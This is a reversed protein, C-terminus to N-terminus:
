KRKVSLLLDVLLLIPYGSACAEVLVLFHMSFTEDLVFLTSNSLPLTSVFHVVDTNYKYSLWFRGWHPYLFVIFLCICLHLCSLPISCICQLTISPQSNIAFLYFMSWIDGLVTPITIALFNSGFVHFCSICVFYIHFCLM